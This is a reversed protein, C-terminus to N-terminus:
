AVTITGTADPRGAVVCRYPFTGATDFKVPGSIEGSAIPSRFWVSGNDPKVLLAIPTENAWTVSQGKKISVNAPAFVTVDGNRGIIVGRAVVIGAKLSPNVADHYTFEGLASFNAQSSPSDPPINKEVWVQGADDPVPRHEIKSEVTEANFWLVSDGSQIVLNQPVYGAANTVRVKRMQQM